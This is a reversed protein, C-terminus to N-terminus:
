KREKKTKKPGNNNTLLNELEKTTTEIDKIFDNLESVIEKLEPVTAYDGEDSLSVRAELVDGEHFFMLRLKIDLFRRLNWSIQLM